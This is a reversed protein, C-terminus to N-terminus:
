HGRYLGRYLGRHLGGKLLKSELGYIYALIYLGWIVQFCALGVGRYLSGAFKSPGGGAFGASLPEYVTRSGWVYIYICIYVCIYM